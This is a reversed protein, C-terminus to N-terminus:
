RRRGGTYEMAEGKGFGYSFSLTMFRGRYRRSSKGSLYLSQLLYLNLERTLFPQCYAGHLLAEPLVFRHCYRNALCPLLKLSAFHHRLIEELGPGSVQVPYAAPHQRDTNFGFSCGPKDREIFLLLGEVHPLAGKMKPTNNLRFIDQIPFCLNQSRFNAIGSGRHHRYRRHGRVNSSELNFKSM